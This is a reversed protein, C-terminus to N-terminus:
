IVIGKFWLLYAFILHILALIGTLFAFFKHYGFVNRKFVHVAVGLSLTTFLSIITLFGFVIALPIVFIM